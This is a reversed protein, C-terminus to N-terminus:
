TARPRAIAFGVTTCDTHYIASRKYGQPRLAVVGSTDEVVVTSLGYIYLFTPLTVFPLASLLHFVDRPLRVLCVEECELM